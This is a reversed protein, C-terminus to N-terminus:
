FQKEFCLVALGQSVHTTGSHIQNVVIKLASSKKKKLTM